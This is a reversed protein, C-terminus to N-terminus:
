MINELCLKPPAWLSSQCSDSVGSVCELNLGAKGPWYAVREQTAFCGVEEEMDSTVKFECSRVRPRSVQNNVLM